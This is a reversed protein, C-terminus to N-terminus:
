LKQIYALAYYPPMGSETDTTGTVQETTSVNNKDTGAAIIAGAVLTHSHGDGTFAHTHDAASGGTDDVAFTDGAGVVFRIRLDPTGNTGDCLQWGAPIDVIAGAWLVIIGKM